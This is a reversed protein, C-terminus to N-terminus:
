TASVERVFENPPRPKWAPGLRRAWGRRVSRFAVTTAGLDRAIKLVAPEAQEFAGNQAALALLVFVELTAPNEGPGLGLAFMGWPGAFCLGNGAHCVTRAAEAGDPLDGLTPWIEDVDCLV